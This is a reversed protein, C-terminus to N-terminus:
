VQKFDLRLICRSSYAFFSPRSKERIQGKDNGGKRGLDETPERNADQENM